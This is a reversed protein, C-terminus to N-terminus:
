ASGLSADGDRENEFPLPSGCKRNVTMPSAGPNM